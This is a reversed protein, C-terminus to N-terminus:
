PRALTIIGNPGHITLIFESLIDMGIAAEIGLREQLPIGYFTTQLLIDSEPLLISGIFRRPVQEGGIGVVFADPDEEELQLEQAIERDIM